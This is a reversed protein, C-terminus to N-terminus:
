RRYKKEYYGPKKKPGFSELGYLILQDRLKQAYDEKIEERCLMFEIIEIAEENTNCRRIFDVVDPNILESIGEEDDSPQEYWRIGKMAIGSKGMNMERALNPFLDEFNTVLDLYKNAIDDLEKFNREVEEEKKKKVSKKSM